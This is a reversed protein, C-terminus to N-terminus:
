NWLFAKLHEEGEVILFVFTKIPSLCYCPPDRSASSSAARRELQATRRPRGLVGPSPCADAEGRQWSRGGPGAAGVRALAERSRLPLGSGGLCAREGM